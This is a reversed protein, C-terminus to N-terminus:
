YRSLCQTYWTWALLAVLITYAMFSTYGRGQTGVIVLRLRTGALYIAGGYDASGRKELRIYFVVWVWGARLVWGRILLGSNMGVPGEGM